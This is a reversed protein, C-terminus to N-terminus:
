VVYIEFVTRLPEYQVKDPVGFSEAFPCDKSAGLGESIM